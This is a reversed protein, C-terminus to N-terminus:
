VTSQTNKRRQLLAERMGPSMTQLIELMAFVHDPLKPHGAKARAFDSSAETFCGLEVLLHARNLLLISDEPAQEIARGYVDLAELKQGARWLRLADQALQQDPLHSFDELLYTDKIADRSRQPLREYRELSGELSEGKRFGLSKLLRSFM